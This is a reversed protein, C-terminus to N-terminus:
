RVTIKGEHPFKPYVRKYLILMITDNQTIPTNFLCKFLGHTGVPEKIHGRLGHKTVLEAPKFWRVDQTDYLLHLKKFILLPCPMFTVPGYVSATSFCDEVLFREMKHKDCNLNSESFIPRGSFSRFGTNFVLEEKGKVVEAYGPVRRVTFHLVSLRNEHRQLGFVQLSKRNSLTEIAHADLSDITLEMYNGVEGKLVAGSVSKADATVRRQVGAFNEFQYIRAYDAPLNEKPHWPSSRFSQLARYRAFRERAKQDVPTDKEDPFQMDDEALARLRQKELLGSTANVPADFISGGMTMDDADSGADMADDEVEASEAAPTNNSEPDTERAGAHTANRMAEEMEAETPWTQEGDIGTADAEIELPDQKAPRTSPFPDQANTVRAIRGTGVGPIHVLSDLALHQGRLYGRVRVSAGSVVTGDLAAETALEVQDALMFSREARWAIKRPSLNCLTRCFLDPKNAEAVRVDPELASQLTRTLLKKTEVLKKGPLNEYGQVCCLVEPCGFAKLASIATYGAADIFEAGTPDYTPIKVTLILVDAVRAAHLVSDIDECRATLFSMRSKHKAFTCHVLSDSDEDVASLNSWSSEAACLDLVDSTSALRSLSVVGVIKPPGQPSGLRKLAVVEAHKNKKMQLNRDLRKQKSDAFDGGKMVLKKGSRGKVGEVKGPGSQRQKARKGNLSKHKKNSQKLSGPKHSHGGAM